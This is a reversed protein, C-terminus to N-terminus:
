PGPQGPMRGGPAVGPMGGGPMGGPMGGRMGGGGQGAGPLKWNGEFKKADPFKKEDSPVTITFSTPFSACAELNPTPQGKAQVKAIIMRLRQVPGALRSASYRAEEGLELFAENWAAREDKDAKQVRMARKKVADYKEKLAKLRTKVLQGAFEEATDPDDPIEYLTDAAENWTTITDRLIVHPTDGCGLIILTLCSM